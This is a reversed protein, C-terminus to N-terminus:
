CTLVQQYALPWNSSNFLSFLRCLNSWLNLSFFDNNQPQLTYQEISIIILLPFYKFVGLKKGIESIIEQILSGPALLNCKATIFRCSCRFIAKQQHYQYFYFQTWLVVCGQLVYHQLHFSFYIGQSPLVFSLFSRFYPKFYPVFIALCVLFSIFPIM